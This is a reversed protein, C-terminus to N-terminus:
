TSQMMRGLGLMDVAGGGFASIAGMELSFRGLMTPGSTGSDGYGNCSSPTTVLPNPRPALNRPMGVPVYVHMM